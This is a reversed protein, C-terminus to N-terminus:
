NLNKDMKYHAFPPQPFHLFSCLENLRVLLNHAKAFLTRLLVLHIQDEKGWNIIREKYIIKKIYIRLEKYISLDLYHQIWKLFLRLRGKRRTETESQKAFDKSVCLYLKFQFLFFKKYNRKHNKM